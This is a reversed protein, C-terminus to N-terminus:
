WFVSKVHKLFESSTLAKTLIDAPNDAGKVHYPEIIGAAVAERVRHYAIATHKKKLQSGPISASQIVGMNDGFLRSPRTVPVGLCRLMYRLAMTEETATRMANFEAGYTSTEVSTQRRSLALVPTCGVFQLVGTCSRRTLRDHAHDSDFYTTIPLEAGKPSPLADDLEEYADPYEDSFDAEFPKMDSPFVIDRSEVKTRLGPFHKLYGYIRFARELHGKRPCANFRSLSNVAHAIDWRGIMVIWNAMGILMQYTRIGEDDLFASTDMEPHDDKPMPSRQKKLCGYLRELRSVAEKCYTKASVYTKGNQQTYDNGLYYQPPGINKIIYVKKLEEMYQECDKAVIKFDDVHTCIYDYGPAATVDPVEDDSDTDSTDGGTPNLVDHQAQRDRIWVDRDYRTPVFGLSRLSDSFHAHWREASTVLGYLAKDIIVICGERDGFEPGARCYIKENTYANVFANSVDGCLCDLGNADAIVQLLRVSQGKVVSAYSNLHSADIVHGGVVLRAKRRLDSKVDFVMRLPAYQFDSGPKHDAPFYRFVELENLSDMEAKIADQWFINGNEEDLQIAHPVSKPVRVGYKISGMNRNNRGPNKKKTPRRKKKAPSTRKGNGPTNTRRTSSGRHSGVSGPQSANYDNGDGSPGDEFTQLRRLRRAARKAARLVGRAWRNYRGHSAAEVKGDIIYQATNLPEDQKLLDFAIWDEDGIDYIVRLELIGATWRHAGIGVIRAGAEDGDNPAFQNQVDLAHAGDDLCDAPDLNIDQADRSFTVNGPVAGQEEPTNTGNRKLEYEQRFPSESEYAYNSGIRTGVYDLPPSFPIDDTISDDDHNTSNAMSQDDDSVINADNESRDGSEEDDESDASIPNQNPLDSTTSGSSETSSAKRRKNPRPNASRIRGTLEEESSVLLDNPVERDLEALTIPRRDDKARPRVVSRTLVKNKRKDDEDTLIYYTFEDGVSEAIGLFYGPLLKDRPFAQSPDLYRVPQFFSFRFVSIDKTEGWQSTFANSWKQKKRAYINFLKESYEIAYCWYKLPAGSHRLIRTVINKCDGIRREAPDQHPYYDESNLLKTYNVNCIQKVVDSNEEKANDVILSLPAGVDTIFERLASPFQKKRKMLVCKIYDSDIGVFLQFSTYGRVSVINSFATDSAVSESLRRMRLGPLRSVLHRRPTERTEAEVTPVHQTTCKLTRKVIAMPAWGLRAQWEEDSIIPKTARRACSVKPDYKWTPTLFLRPLSGVEKETPKRMPLYCHLGNFKLPLGIGDVTVSQGGGHVKPVADVICGATRLINDNLLSEDQDKRECLLAFPLVALVDTGDDTTMVAAATVTRMAPSSGMGSIGGGVPITDEEAHDSLVAVHSIGVICEDSGGDIVGRGTGDLVTRRSTMATPLRRAKLNKGKKKAKGPPINAILSTGGKKARKRAIPKENDTWELEESESSDELDRNLRVRADNRHKFSTMTRRSTSPPPGADSDSSEEDKAAARRAKARKEREKRKKNKSKGEEPNKAAAAQAKRWALFQELDKVDKPYIGGQQPQPQTQKPKGGGGGGGGGGKKSPKQQQQQQKQKGGRSPKKGKGPKGADGTLRRAITKMVQQEDQQELQLDRARFREIVKKPDDIAEADLMQCTTDYDPNSGAIRMLHSVKTRDTLPEGNDELLKFLELVHSIVSKMDMGETMQTKDLHALAWKCIMRRRSPDNHYATIAQLFGWGDKKDKYADAIFSITTGFCLYNLINFLLKNGEPHTVFRTKATDETMEAVEGAAPAVLPLHVLLGKNWTIWEGIDEAPYKVLEMSHVKIINSNSKPNSAVPSGASGPSVTGRGSHGTRKKKDVIARVVTEYSTDFTLEGGDLYFERLLCLRKLMRKKAKDDQGTTNAVAAAIEADTLLYFEEIFEIGLGDAVFKRASNQEDTGGNGFTRAIFAVLQDIPSLQINAGDGTASTPAPKGKTPTVQPLGKSKESADSESM